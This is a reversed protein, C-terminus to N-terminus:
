YPKDAVPLYPPSNFASRIVVICSFQHNVVTEERRRQGHVNFASSACPICVFGQPISRIGFSDSFPYRNTPILSRYYASTQPRTQTSFWKNQPQVPYFILKSQYVPSNM